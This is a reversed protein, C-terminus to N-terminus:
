YDSVIQSLVKVKAAQQDAIKIATEAIEAQQRVMRNGEAQAQELEYTAAEQANYGYQKQLFEPLNKFKVKAMGIGGGRPAHEIFLGDPELRLLKVSNYTKGDTATITVPLSKSSQIGSQNTQAVVESVSALVLCVSGLWFRLLPKQFGSPYDKM